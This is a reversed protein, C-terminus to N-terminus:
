RFFRNMLLEFSQYEFSQMTRIDINKIELSFCVYLDGRQIKDVYHNDVYPLGCNPVICVRDGQSYEINKDLKIEQIQLCHSTKFFYDYLSITMDYYLDYKNILKDIRLKHMDEIKLTVIINSRPISPLLSDDGQNEFTYKEQYNLLSIYLTTTSYKLNSGSNRRLVKVNVKKVKYFYLDCLTVPLEIHIDKTKQQLLISMYFLMQTMLKTINVNAVRTKQRQDYEEKQMSNSLVEYAEKIKKFYSDDGNNKDPHYKLALKIYAKRIDQRTAFPNVHLITYPNHMNNLLLKM